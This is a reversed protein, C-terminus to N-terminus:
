GESSLTFPLSACTQQKPFFSWTAWRLEPYVLACSQHPARRRRAPEKRRSTPQRRRRGALLRRILSVMM